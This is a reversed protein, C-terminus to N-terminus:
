SITISQKLRREKPVNNQIKGDANKGCGLWYDNFKIIKFNGKETTPLSFGRMWDMAKDKDVELINKKLQHKLLHIADLAIRFRTDQERALYLGAAEIRLDNDLQEMIKQSVIGTYMRLKEKGFQLILPLESIGYDENMRTLIENKENTTLVKMCM